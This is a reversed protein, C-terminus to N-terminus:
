SIKQLLPVFFYGPYEEKKLGGNELKQIKFISFGVPLVMTGGIKLQDVLETPIDESTASVLIKDYPAYNKLGLDESAKRIEANNINYKKLNKKGFDVLEGVIEVGYVKGEEGVIKSFIATTWGSGSGIDLIKEGEQPELLELMFAVVAPQSITQDYGIALPIDEYAFDHYKELVFDMRDVELMADIVNQTVLFKSEILHDVLTKQTKM